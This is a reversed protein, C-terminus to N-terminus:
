ATQRKRFWPLTGRQMLLILADAALALALMLVLGVIIPTYFFSGFGLDFLMGLAGYALLFSLGLM